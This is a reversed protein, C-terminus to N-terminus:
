ASVLETIEDLTCGLQKARAIVRLREVDRDTYLRYGAATREPPVLVGAQEYFRLTTPAFGTLRAIEAIRYRSAPAPATM